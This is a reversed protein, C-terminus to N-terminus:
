LKINFTIEFVKTHNEIYDAKEFDGKERLHTILEKRLEETKEKDLEGHFNTYGFANYGLEECPEIITVPEGCTSCVKWIFTKKM